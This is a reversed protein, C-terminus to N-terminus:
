TAAQEGYSDSQATENIRRCRLLAASRYSSLRLALRDIFCANLVATAAILIPAAVIAVPAWRLRTKVFDDLGMDTTRFLVWGCLRQLYNNVSSLTWSFDNTHRWMFRRVFSMLRPNLNEMDPRRRKGGIFIAIEGGAALRALMAKFVKEPKRLFDAHAHLLIYRYRKARKPAVYDDRFILTEVRPDAALWGQLRSDEPCLFLVSKGPAEGLSALWQRILRYDNWDYARLPVDPPTGQMWALLVAYKALWKELRGGTLEAPFALGAGTAKARLWHQTGRIWYPHNVHSVPRDGLRAHLDAIFSAANKSVRNLEKPLPGSHFVFDFEASQRHEKTTWRRLSGAIHDLRAPGFCLLDDEQHEPGLEMMFFEDSDTLAMMPSSPVLEPILGYDCYSNVPGLPIEPRICLMFLLHYRGLLASQGMRWYSQNFSLCHFDDQGLTKGLATLHLNALAMGVLARPKLSLRHGGVAKRLNPLLREAAARLSPAVICRHGSRIKDALTALSGDAVIFDSNMFVFATSTQEEGASMIGRAYALTLTVGYATGVILDDIEIFHVQCIKQLRRFAAHGHILSASRKDTLIAVELNTSAALAPLNGAALLSPLSLGLWRTRHERGWLCTLFRVKPKRDSHDNM